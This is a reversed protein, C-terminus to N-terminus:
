EVLNVRVGPVKFLGSKKGHYVFKGMPGGACQFTNGTVACDIDPLEKPKPIKVDNGLFRQWRAEFVDLAFNYLWMDLPMLSALKDQVEKTEKKPHKNQNVKPLEVKYGVLESLMLMSRDLHELIGFWKTELLRKVASKTIRKLSEKLKKPDFSLNPELVQGTLWYIGGRGDKWISKTQFMSEVDNLYTIIDQNHIKWNKPWTQKPLVQDLQRKGFYFHSIARSVPHRFLALVNTCPFKTLEWWTYHKNGVYRRHLKNKVLPTMLHDFSTGGAKPIHIFAIPCYKSKTLSPLLRKVKGRSYKRSYKMSQSITTQTQNIGKNIILPSYPLLFNESKTVNMSISIPNLRRSSNQFQTFNKFDKSTSSFVDQVQRYNKHGNYIYLSFYLFFFIMLITYFKCWFLIERLYFIVSKQKM